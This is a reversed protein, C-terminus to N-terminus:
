KVCGPRKKKLKSRYKQNLFTYSLSQVYDLDVYGYGVM